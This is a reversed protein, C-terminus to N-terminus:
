RGTERARQLPITSWGTLQVFGDSAAVLLHRRHSHVITGPKHGHPEVWGEAQHVYLTNRDVRAISEISGFARVTRLVTAVGADWSLTREADTIRPWYTGEGQPRREAWLQPLEAALSEALRKAGLQCKALLTDHTENSGIAFQRQAVIAGTDFSPDLAHATVGWTSLDDLVARFLPYPGRGHPLLSPHINLGYRLHEEWGKVLWPYGAVVVAECGRDALWAMDDPTIRSLQMPIRAKRARAVVVENHDYIGDCPRTFLKVPEWGRSLLTEFVGGLFDIGCYAFRM